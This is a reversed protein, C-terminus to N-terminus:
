LPPTHPTKHTFRREFTLTNGNKMKQVSSTQQQKNTQKGSCLPMHSHTHKHLHWLYLFCIHTAKAHSFLATRTSTLFLALATPFLHWISTFPRIIHTHTHTLSGSVRKAALQISFTDEVHTHTRTYPQRHDHTHTHATRLQLQWVDNVAGRCAWRGGGV